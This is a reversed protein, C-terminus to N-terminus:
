KGVLYVSAKNSWGPRHEVFGLTRNCGNCLLGRVKGTQHDHDIHLGRRLLQTPKEGCIECRGNARIVLADYEAKNIGYAQMRHSDELNPCCTKCWRQRIAVPVFEAACHDCATPKRKVSMWGTRAGLGVGKNPGFYSPDSRYVGHIQLYKKITMHSVKLGIEQLRKGTKAVSQKEVHYVQIALECWPKCM